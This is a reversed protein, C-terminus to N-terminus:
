WGRKNNRRDRKNERRDIRDELRDKPGHNVRRDIRDERRDIRDEFRDLRSGQKIVGRNELRDLRYDLKSLANAKPTPQPGAAAPLAMTATLLSTAIVSKIFM